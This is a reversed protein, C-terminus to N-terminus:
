SGQATPPANTLAELEASVDAVAAAGIRQFIELAMLPGGASNLEALLIFRALDDRLQQTGTPM